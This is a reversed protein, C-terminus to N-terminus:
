PNKSNNFIIVYILYVVLPLSCVFWPVYDNMDNLVSVSLGALSFMSLIFVVLKRNLYKNLFFCSVCVGAIAILVWLLIIM